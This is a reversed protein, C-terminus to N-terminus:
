FFVCEDNALNRRSEKHVQEGVGLGSRGRGALEDARENGTNGNHGRVWKIKTSGIMPLIRTIIDKNKVPKRDKNKWGSKAWAKHWVTLSNICYQSDSYITAGKIDCVNLWTLASEIGAFEMQNNTVGDAGGCMAFTEDDGEYAVFAWGGRGPNPHCSGDTYVNIM